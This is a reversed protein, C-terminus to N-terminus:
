EKKKRENKGDKRRGIKKYAKEVENLGEKMEVKRGATV